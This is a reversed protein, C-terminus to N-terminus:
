RRLFGAHAAFMLVVATAPVVFYKTMVTMRKSECFSTIPIGCSGAPMVTISANAIVRFKWEAKKVGSTQWWNGSIRTKKECRDSGVFRVREAPGKGPCSTMIQRMGCQTRPSKGGEDERGTTWIPKTKEYGIVQTYGDNVEFKLSQRQPAPYVRTPAKATRLATKVNSLPAAEEIM